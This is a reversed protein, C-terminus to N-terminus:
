VLLPFANIQALIDPAIEKSTFIRFRLEAEEPLGAPYCFGNHKSQPVLKAIAQQQVYFYYCHNEIYIRMEEHFRLLGRRKKLIYLKQDTKYIKLDVRKTKQDVIDITDKNSQGISRPRKCLWNRGSSSNFSVSFHLSSYTAATCLHNDDSYLYYYTVGTWPVRFTYMIQSFEANDPKGQTM